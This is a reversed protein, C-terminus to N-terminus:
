PLPQGARDAHPGHPQSLAPPDSPDRLQDVVPCDPYRPCTKAVNIAHTLLDLKHELPRVINISFADVFQKALDFEKLKNEQLTQQCLLKYRKRQRICDWGALATILALLLEFLYNNM